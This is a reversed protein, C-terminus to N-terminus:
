KSPSPNYVLSPVPDPVNYSLNRKRFLPIRVGLPTVNEVRPPSGVPLKAYQVSQRTVDPASLVQVEPPEPASAHFTLPVHRHKAVWFQNIQLFNYPVSKSLGGLPSVYMCLNPVNPTSVM